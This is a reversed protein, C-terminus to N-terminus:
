EEPDINEVEETVMSISSPTKEEEVGSEIARSVDKSSIIKLILDDSSKPPSQQPSSDLSNRPSGARSGSQRNKYPVGLDVDPILNPNATNWLM